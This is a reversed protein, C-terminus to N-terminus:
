KLIMARTYISILGKSNEKWNGDCINRSYLIGDLM